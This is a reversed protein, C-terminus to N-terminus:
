ECSEGKWLKKLKVLGRRYWSAVTNPSQNSVEAIERFTLDDYCKLTIVEKEDDSLQSLCRALHNYHENKDHTDTPQSIFSDQRKKTEKMSDLAANRICRYIYPKLDKPLTNRELIKLFVNHVIDEASQKNRTISLAYTFLGQKNRNYFNKLQEVM